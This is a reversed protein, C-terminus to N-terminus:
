VINFLGGVFNDLPPNVNGSPNFANTLNCLLNGLLEGHTGYVDVTVPGNNCNDLTVNLGLLNLNIPGASLFLIDCANAPPSTNQSTNALSSPVTVPNLAGNLLSGLELDFLVREVPNLGSLANGLNGGNTDLAHAVSYLLNGLLNGSGQQATINLCIASTQVNLGLIDLHIPDIHLNLIEAGNSGPTATLTVPVSIPNVGVQGQLTAHNGQADVTNVSLPVVGPTLAGLLGDLPNASPVERRELEELIPRVTQSQGSSNSRPASADSKWFSLAHFM